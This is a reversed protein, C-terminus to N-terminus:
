RAEAAPSSCDSSVELERGPVVRFADSSSVATALDLFIMEFSGSWGTLEVVTELFSGAWVSVALRELSTPRQAEYKWGARSRGWVTLLECGATAGDEIFDRYGFAAGSGRLLV